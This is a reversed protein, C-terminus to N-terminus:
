PHLRNYAPVFSYLTLIYNSLINVLEAIILRIQQYFHYVGPYAPVEGDRLTMTRKDVHRKRVPPDPNAKGPQRRGAPM